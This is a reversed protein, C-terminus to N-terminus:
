QTVFGWFLGWFGFRDLRFGSRMYIGIAISLAPKTKIM